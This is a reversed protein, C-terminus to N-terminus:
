NDFSMGDRTRPVEPFPHRVSSGTALHSGRDVSRSAVEDKVSENSANPTEHQSNGQVQADDKRAEHAWIIGAVVVALAAASLAVAKNGM